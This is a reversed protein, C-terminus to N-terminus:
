KKVHVSYLERHVAVSFLTSNEIYLTCQRFKICQVYFCSVVVSYHVDHVCYLTYLSYM